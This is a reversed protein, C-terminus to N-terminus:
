SILPTPYSINIMMTTPSVATGVPAVYGSGPLDTSLKGATVESLYYPAGNELGGTDGTILDWQETTLTMPGAFQTRVQRGPVGLSQALGVVYTGDGSDAKAQAVKGGEGVAVLAALPTGPPASPADEFLTPVYSNSRLPVSSLSTTAFDAMALM